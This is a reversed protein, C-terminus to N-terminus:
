RSLFKPISPNSKSRDGSAQSSTEIGDYKGPTIRLRTGDPRITWSEVSVKALLSLLTSYSIKSKRAQPITPISPWNSSM